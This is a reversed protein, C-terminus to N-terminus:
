SDSENNFATACLRSFMEEFCITIASNLEQHTGFGLEQGRLFAQVQWYSEMFKVSFTIKRHRRQEKFGFLSKIKRCANIYANAENESCSSESKASVEIAEIQKKLEEIYEKLPNVQNEIMKQVYSRNPSENWKYGM